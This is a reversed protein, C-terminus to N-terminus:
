HNTELSTLHRVGSMVTVIMLPALVILEAVANSGWPRPLALMVLGAMSLLTLPIRHIRVHWVALPTTLFLIAGWIVHLIGTTEPFVGVCIMAVMVIRYYINMRISYLLGLSGATIAALNFLISTVGRSTWIKSSGPRGGLDSLWNQFPDFWPATAVSLLLFTLGVIPIAFALAWGNLDM